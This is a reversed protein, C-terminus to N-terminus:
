ECYPKGGSCNRKRGERAWKREKRGQDIKFVIFCPSSLFVQLRKKLWCYKKTSSWFFITFYLHWSRDLDHTHTDQKLYSSINKFINPFDLFLSPSWRKCLFVKQPIQFINNMGHCPAISGWRHCKWTNSLVQPHKLHHSSAPPHKFAFDFPHRSTLLSGSFGGSSINSYTPSIHYVHLCILPKLNFVDRFNFCVYLFPLIVFFIFLM